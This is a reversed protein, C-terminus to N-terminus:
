TTVFYHTEGPRFYLRGGARRVNDTCGCGVLKEDNSVMGGLSYYLIIGSAYFLFLSPVVNSQV